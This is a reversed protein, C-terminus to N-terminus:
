GRRGYNLAFYVSQLKEQSDKSSGRATDLKLTTSNSANVQIVESPGRIVVRESFIRADVPRGSRQGGLLPNRDASTSNYPKTSDREGDKGGEEIERDRERERETQIREMTFAWSSIHATHMLRLM